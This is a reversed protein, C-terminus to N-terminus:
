TEKLDVLIDDASLVSSKREVPPTYNIEELIISYLKTNLHCFKICNKLIEHDGILYWIIHYMSNPRNSIDTIVHNHADM